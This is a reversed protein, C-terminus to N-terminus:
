LEVIEAAQVYAEDDLKQQLGALEASLGDNALRSVGVELLWRRFIPLAVDFGADTEVLVGRDVLNNRVPALELEDIASPGRHAQIVQLTAPKEARLCRAVAALARRRKLIVAERDEVASATGDEWLHMFANTDLASVNRTVAREVERATIDG